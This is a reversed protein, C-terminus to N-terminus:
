IHSEYEGGRECDYLGVTACSYAYTHMKFRLGRGYWEKRATLRTLKKVNIFRLRNKKEKQPLSVTPHTKIDVMHVTIQTIVAEHQSFAAFQQCTHWTFSIHHFTFLTQRTVSTM